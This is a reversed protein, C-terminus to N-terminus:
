NVKLAASFVKKPKLETAITRAIAQFAQALESEPHAVTIPNGDDGGERLQQVLPLQGLLPVGLEDALETTELMVPVIRKGAWRARNLEDMCTTSACYRPSLFAVFTSTADIAQIASASKQFPQLAPAIESPKANKVQVIKTIYQGAEPLEKADMQNFAAGERDQQMGGNIAVTIIVKNGPLM